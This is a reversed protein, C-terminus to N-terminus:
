KLKGTTAANFLLELNITTESDGEQRRAIVNNGQISPEAYLVDDGMENTQRIGFTYEATIEETSANMLIQSNDLIIIHDLLQEVDHVQHTSIFLSADEAMNGAVVKRFLAKSPIDLGNTPEDMLLIRCGTALAFSMYVKKKQGMSLQKFDLDSSMEFDSLCKELVEESFRPYFDEHIKAYKSLSMNPLDYEEPVIYLEELMEPYRCSATYGDVIVSGKKPKLLGAILYLLTSKGMGNKGLLGYIRNENLQLNLGEFVNHKSKPYSFTLENVQIMLSKKKISQKIQNCKKNETKLGHTGGYYYVAFTLNFILVQLSKLLFTIFFYYKKESDAEVLCDYEIPKILFFIAM